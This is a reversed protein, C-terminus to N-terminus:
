KFVEKFVTYKDLLAPIPNVGIGPGVPVDITGDKNLEAPRDVIDERYYRKSASIDGPLTFNPLSALALNHARGIGTELMGGCWVPIRYHLCRDHLAAAKTLGGVRGIKINIVRCSGLEAAKRADDPSLISEDLCIPTSLEKQWRAHDVLDDSGLPQEVMLLQMQDMERFLPLDDLRYAANADAMLLIRPFHDRVKELVQLDWGPKIKVKIRRYGEELYGGILELLAELNEQIGISVGVEVSKKRGGLLEALSKGEKKGYLDWFAGELGSKAMPHGRYSTLAQALEGPHQWDKGLVAPIFFDRLVHWATGVTEYSYGPFEMVPVEGYGSLGEGFIGVIILQRVEQRGFSTEFYNVLPMEVHRLEVREIRM